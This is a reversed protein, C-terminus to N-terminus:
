IDANPNGHKCVVLLSQFPPFSSKSPSIGRRSARLTERHLRSALWNHEKDLVPFSLSGSCNGREPSRLCISQALDLQGIPTNVPSSFQQPRHTKAHTVSGLSAIIHSSRRLVAAQSTTGLRLTSNERSSLSLAARRMRSNLKLESWTDWCPQLRKPGLVVLGLMLMFLIETGFAV